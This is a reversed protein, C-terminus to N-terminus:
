QNNLERLPRKSPVPLKKPSNIMAKDIRIKNITNANDIKAIKWNNSSFNEFSKQIERNISMSLIKAAIGFVIPNKIAYLSTISIVGYKCDNGLHQSIPQESPVKESIVKKDYKAAICVISNITFM